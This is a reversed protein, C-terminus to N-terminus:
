RAGQVPTTVRAAAAAARVALAAQRPHGLRHSLQTELAGIPQLNQPARPDVHAVGAYRPLVLTMQDAVRRAETIGASQPFEIRAIGHWPGRGTLRLYCSYRDSIAYLPTRQARDLEAILPRDEVPLLPRHHTKVFGCVPLDTSRAFNLPGDCVVTWGDEALQEALKGEAGRMRKQLNRLPADHDTDSISVSRWAYGAPGPPLDASQGSGWIALRDVRIHDIRPPGGACLVAGCAHAGAVGYALAHTDPDELYLFADGRRVGDVFALRDPDASPEPTIAFTPSDEALVGAADADDGDVQLPAGYHAQWEEVYLKAM